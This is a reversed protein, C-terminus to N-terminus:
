SKTNKTVYLLEMDESIDEAMEIEMDEKMDYTMWEKMTKTIDTLM